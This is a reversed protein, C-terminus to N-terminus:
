TFNKIANKGAYFLFTVFFLNVVNIEHCQPDEKESVIKITRNTKSSTTINSLIKKSTNAFM